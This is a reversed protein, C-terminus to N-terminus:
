GLQAVASIVGMDFAAHFITRSVGAESLIALLDIIARGAASPDAAEAARLSLVIAEAVRHPYPDGEVRQVYTDLRIARLRELYTVYRLRQQAIVAAAQALGLPLRGMETALELAGANDDLGTRAALFALAEMETFVGVAVARGLNEAAQRTSTVVIQAAGA